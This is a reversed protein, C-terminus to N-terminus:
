TQGPSLTGVNFALAMLGDGANGAPASPGNVLLQTPDRPSLPTPAFAAVARSASAPAPRPAPRGQDHLKNATLPPVIPHSPDVSNFTQATPPDLNLGQQPNFGEAWSVDSLPGTTTNTLDVDVAIFTDSMGFSLAREIKLGRFLGDSLVRQNSADSQDTIKM